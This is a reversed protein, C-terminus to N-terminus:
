HCRQRGCLDAVKLMRGDKTEVLHFGTFSDTGKWEGLGNMIDSVERQKDKMSERANVNPIHVITKLSPDLVKAVADVYAGSYFFYGIDLSKLWQYGNLQEYYTYTITEFKSEDEPELIAISDGRFYSGTMAVVHAKDRTICDGLQRGLKHDPNSSVHHFEDVAILRNDFAEVGLEEVAFRFASHTCILIKDTSAL